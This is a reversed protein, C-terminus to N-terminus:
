IQNLTTPSKQVWTLPFFAKLNYRCYFPGFVHKYKLTFLDERASIFTRALNFLEQLQITSQTLSIYIWSPNNSLHRVLMEKIELFIYVAKIM